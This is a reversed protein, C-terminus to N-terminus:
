LLRDRKKTSVQLEPASGGAIAVVYLGLDANGAVDAEQPDRQSRQFIIGHNKILTSELKSQFCIYFNPM